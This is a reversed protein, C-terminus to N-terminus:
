EKEGLAARARRIDGRKIWVDDVAEDNSVENWDEDERISSTVYEGADDPWLYKNAFPRLAERLREIEADCDDVLAKCFAKFDELEAHAHVFYVRPTEHDIYNLLGATCGLEYIDKM